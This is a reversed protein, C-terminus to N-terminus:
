CLLDALTAGVDDIEAADGLGVGALQPRIQASREAVVDLQHPRIANELQREYVGGARGRFPGVDGETTHRRALQGARAGGPVGVVFLLVVSLGLGVSGVAVLRHLHREVGNLTGALFVAGSDAVGDEGGFIETARQAGPAESLRTIGSEGGHATPLDLVAREVVGVGDDQCGRLSRPLCASLSASGACPDAEKRRAFTVVQWNPHATEMM